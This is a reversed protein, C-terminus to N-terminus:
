MHTLFKTPKRYTNSKLGLSCQLVSFSISYVSNKSNGYSNHSHPYIDGPDVLFLLLGWSLGLPGIFRSTMREHAQPSAVLLTSRCSAPNTCVRVAWLTSRIVLVSIRSERTPAGMCRLWALILRRPNRLSLSLLNV